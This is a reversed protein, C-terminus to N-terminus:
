VFSRGASRVFKALAHCRRSTYLWIGGFSISAWTMSTTLEGKGGGGKGGGAIIWTWFQFGKRALCLRRLRGSGRGRGSASGLGRYRRRGARGWWGRV